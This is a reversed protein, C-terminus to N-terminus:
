TGYIFDIYATGLQCYQVVAGLGLGLVGAAIIRKTRSGLRILDTGGVLISVFGVIAYYVNSDPAVGRAWNSYMRLTSLSWGLTYGIALLAAAAIYHLPRAKNPAETESASQVDEAGSEM